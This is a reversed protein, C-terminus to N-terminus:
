LDQKIRRISKVDNEIQFQLKIKKGEQNRPVVSASIRILSSPKLTRPLDNILM